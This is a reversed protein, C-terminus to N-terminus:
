LSMLKQDILHKVDHILAGLIDISSLKSNKDFHILQNINVKDFGNDNEILDRFRDREPELERLKAKVFRIKEEVAESDTEDSSLYDNRLSELESNLKNIQKTVQDLRPSAEYTEKRRQQITKSFELLGEKLISISSRKFNNISDNLSNKNEESLKCYPLSLVRIIQEVSKDM